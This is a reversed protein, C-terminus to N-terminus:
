VSKPAPSDIRTPMREAECRTIHLGELKERLGALVKDRLEKPKSESDDQNNKGAGYGPVFFELVERGNRFRRNTTENMETKREM